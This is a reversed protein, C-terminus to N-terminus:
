IYEQVLGSVNIIETDRGISAQHIIQKGDVSLIQLEGVGKVSGYHVVIYDSAPVPYISIDDCLPDETNTLSKWDFQMWNLNVGASNFDFKMMSQGEPLQMQTTYSAWDQWDSTAAFTVQQLFVDDLSVDFNGAYGAHRFEVDYIGPTTIDLPYTVWDGADVYGLNYGGGEDATTETQLGAM